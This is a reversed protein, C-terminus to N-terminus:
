RSLGSSVVTTPHTAEGGVPQLAFDEDVEDAIEWLQM